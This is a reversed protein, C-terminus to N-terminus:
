YHLKIFPKYSPHLRKLFPFSTLNAVHRQLHNIHCYIVPYKIKTSIYHLNPFKTLPNSHNLSHLSLLIAQPKTQINQPPPKQITKM